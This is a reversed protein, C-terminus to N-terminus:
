QKRAQCAACNDLIADVNFEFAGCAECATPGDAEREDLWAIQEKYGVLPKPAEVTSASECTRCRFRFKHVITNEADFRDSKSMSEPLDPASM